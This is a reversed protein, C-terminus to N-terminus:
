EVYGLERLREVVIDMDKPALPQKVPIGALPHKVKGWAIREWTREHYYYLVLRIGHFLVTILTMETLDGTILYAILGLLLIGIVRWVISKAWSRKKTDM